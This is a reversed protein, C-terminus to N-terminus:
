NRHNRSRPLYSAGSGYRTWNRMNDARLPLGLAPSGRRPTGRGMPSGHPRGENQIDTWRCFPTKEDVWPQRPARLRSRPLQAGSIEPGCSSSLWTSTGWSHQKTGSVIQSCRPCFPRRDARGGLPRRGQGVTGLAACARAPLSKEAVRVATSLTINGNAVCTDWCGAQLFAM